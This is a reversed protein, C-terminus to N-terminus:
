CTVLTAVSTRTGDVFSGTLKSQFRRQPCALSFLGKRFRLRLDVLSGYGGAVKPVSAAILLGYLNGKPARSVEATAVVDATVPAPLFVHLAVRRSDIKYATTRGEVQVPEQGPFAVDWKSRGFAIRAEPCPDEGTRSQSRIGSPCTPVDGLDLRFQRDFEFRLERLPPPHSGDDMEISTALRLSVPIRGEAPVPIPAPRSAYTLKVQPPFLDIGRQGFTTSVLVLSAAIAAALTLLVKARVKGM